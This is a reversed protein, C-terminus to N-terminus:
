NYLLPVKSNNNYGILNLSDIQSVFLSLIAVVTWHGLTHALVAPAFYRYRYINCILLRFFHNSIKKKEIIYFSLLTSWLRLHVPSDAGIMTLLVREIGGHLYHFLGENPFTFVLMFDFNSCCSALNDMMLSDSQLFSPLPMSMSVELSSHSM